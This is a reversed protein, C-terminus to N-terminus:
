RSGKLLHRRLEKFSWLCIGFAGILIGAAPGIMINGADDVEYLLVISLFSVVGLHPQLTAHLWGKTHLEMLFAAVVYSSVEGALAIWSLSVLDGGQELAIWALPLVAVRMLNAFMANSTRGQAMAVISIGAKAVRVVQSTALLVILSSLALYREGLLLSILEDGALVTFILFVSSIAFVAETTLASVKLFDAVGQPTSREIRSLQPLFLSQASKALVLTPTLTLTLGMSFIGLSEMGLERGVIARDGNFILFLLANNVLLPWGFRLSQTIIDRDIVLRYSREAVLQSIAAALAAQLLISGLMARWDGLWVALWWAALLSVAAPVVGVILGPGFRMTRSLRYIDFHVLANLIPVLALARYGWTVEPVGMFRAFPGALLLLALGSLVGRLVQFGQLAAQFRPDDGDRAQVIQQQLGLASVMEVVAVVLALTAAVGFDEVAILRAILLNRAFSLLSAAANGTLVLIATRIM